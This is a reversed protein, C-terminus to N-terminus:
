KAAKHRRKGTVAGPAPLVAFMTKEHAAMATRIADRFIEAFVQAKRPLPMNKPSVLSLHAEDVDHSLPRRVVVGGSYSRQTVIPLLAFSYGQGLGVMSRVLELSRARFKIDPTIGHQRFLTQYYERVGPIDLMIFPYSSLQQLSVSKRAALAHNEPLLVHPKVPVLKEIAVTSDEFMDYTIAVDATGQKVMDVVDVLSGEHLQVNLDPHDKALGEVAPPLVYPSIVYYCAVQVDGSIREGFGQVDNHFADVDELLSEARNVFRRGDPTLSLGKARNRVFFSYGYAEEMGKIAASIAPQSIGTDASAQTISGTRAVAILYALHALNLHMGVVVESNEFRSSIINSLISELFNKFACGRCRADGAFIM